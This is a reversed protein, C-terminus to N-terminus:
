YIREMTVHLECKMVHLECWLLQACRPLVARAGFAGARPWFVLLPKRKKARSRSRNETGTAGLLRGVSFVTINGL